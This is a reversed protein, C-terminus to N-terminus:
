DRSFVVIGNYPQIGIIQKGDPSFRYKEVGSGPKQIRFESGECWWKGGQGSKHGWTGDKNFTTDSTGFVLSAWSNWVGVVNPCGTRGPQEHPNADMREKTRTPAQESVSGSASKDTKGITGGISGAQANVLSPILTIAAILFVGCALRSRNLM